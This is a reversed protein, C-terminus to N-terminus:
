PMDAPRLVEPANARNNDNNRSWRSSMSVKLAVEFCYSSDNTKNTQQTPRIIDCGGFYRLAKVQLTEWTINVDEVAGEAGM